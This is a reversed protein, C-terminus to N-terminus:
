LHVREGKKIKSIDLVNEGILEMLEEDHSVDLSENFTQTVALDIDHSEVHEGRRLMANSAAREVVGVLMAGNVTHALTLKDSLEGKSTRFVKAVIWKPNYINDVLRESLDEAVPKKSLVKQVIACADQKTPRSVRIRRDIRGDRVVAPDLTDPRNTALIVLAGSDELGDMEALFQPVITRELGFGFGGRKGLIADVEDLFLVAPFGHEKKHRRADDFMKRINAETNGVYMNLLEPGKVYYFGGKGQGGHLEAVATAAAKGLMTKGCGPPGSLLIGKTPRRNFRTFLERNRIPGEVAEQMLVKASELGGIDDWTVGTSEGFICDSPAPGLVALAINGTDDVIVRDGVNAQSPLVIARSQGGREIEGLGGPLVSKLTVMEGCRSDEDVRELIQMSDGLVRVTDGPALAMDAPRAVEVRKGTVLLVVRKADKVKLVTAYLSPQEQFKTIVSALRKVESALQESNGRKAQYEDMTMRETQRNFGDTYTIEVYTPPPRPPEVIFQYPISIEFFSNDSTKTKGGGGGGGSGGSGGGGGGIILSMDTNRSRRSPDSEVVRYEAAAFFGQKATGVRPMGQQKKNKQKRSM